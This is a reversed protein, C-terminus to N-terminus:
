NDILADLKASTQGYNEIAGWSGFKNFEGVDNFHMFLANDTIFNWFALYTRYLDGMRPDRNVENGLAHLGNSAKGDFLIHQGSEYAAIELDLEECFAQYKRVNSLAENIWGTPASNPVVGGFELEQFFLDKANPQGVWKEMEAQNVNDRTLRGAFYPAIAVVDIGSGKFDPMLDTIKTINDVINDTNNFNVNGFGASPPKLDFCLSRFGTAQWAFVIKLNNQNGFVGKFISAM